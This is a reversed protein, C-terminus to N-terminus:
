ILAEEVSNRVQFMSNMDVIEFVKQVPPNLCTLVLSSNQETAVKMAAVLIRLGASSVFNVQKLDLIINKQGVKKLEELFTKEIKHVNHVDMNGMFRVIKNNGQLEVTFEM